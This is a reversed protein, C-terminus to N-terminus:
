VSIFYQIFREAIHTLNKVKCKRFKPMNLGKSLLEMKGDRDLSFIAYRSNHFINYPWDEEKELSAHIFLSCTGGLDSYSISLYGIESLPDLSKIISRLNDVDSPDYAM